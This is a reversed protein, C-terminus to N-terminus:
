NPTARFDLLLFNPTIDSGSAANDSKIPSHLLSLYNVRKDNRVMNILRQNTKHQIDAM